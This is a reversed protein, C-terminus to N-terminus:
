QGEGIKGHYTFTTLTEEGDQEKLGQSIPFGDSDYEYEYAQLDGRHKFEIVNNNLGFNRFLYQLFWKPTKCYFFPSKKDDYKFERLEEASTGDDLSIDQSIKALNGNQYHYKSYWFDYDNSTEESIIYGDSNVIFTYKCNPDRTKITNADIEFSMDYRDGYAFASLNDGTYTITQTVELKGDNYRHIKVIRNKDDYEFREIYSGTTISELLKVGTAAVTEEEAAVPTESHHSVEEEDTIPTESQRSVETEAVIPPESQRSTEAGSRYTFTTIETHEDGDDWKVATTRRTPFGDNDYEYAITAIREKSGKEKWLTINNNLGGFNNGLRHQVFWKPTKSHLFPSKMKDYKYESFWKVTGDLDTVTEKILNGDQYQYASVEKPDYMPETEMKIIYGDGNVTITYESHTNGTRITNENRNFSIEGFDEMIGALEVLDNGIYTLTHTESIEGDHYYFIKAIRNKDDYEFKVTQGDTTISELLKVDGSAEQKVGDKPKQEQKGCGVFCLLLALSLTMAGIKVYKKIKV